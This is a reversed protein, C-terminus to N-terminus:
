KVWDFTIAHTANSRATSSRPASPVYRAARGLSPAGEGVLHLGLDALLAEVLLLVAEDLVVSGVLEVGAQEHEGADPEERGVIRPDDAGDIGDLALQHDVPEHLAIRRGVVVRDVTKGGALSREQHRREPQDVVKGEDAALLLRALQELTEAAQLVVDAHEGLLVVGFAFRRIPLKGCAKECKPNM